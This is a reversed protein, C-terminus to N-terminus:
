AIAGLRTGTALWNINSSGVTANGAGGGGGGARGNQNNGGGSGNAGWGGGNGGYPSGGNGHSSYTGSAGTSGTSDYGSGGGGGSSNTLGTRGGGGGGTGGYCTDTGSKGCSYSIYGGGGGGGGGGGAITGNNRFSVASTVVLATGGAGGTSGNGTISGGGRGGDGGMGVITGNNIVELGGPYSGSITLAASGTTNSSLVVGSNITVVLQSAGDWGQSVAYSNLDTPSSLNSAITLGFQSSKGRGDLMSIVGSAKGFLNRTISDNLSITATASRGLEINVQQLSISGSSPLPM